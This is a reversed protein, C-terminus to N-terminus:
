SQYNLLFHFKLKKRFNSLSTAERATIPLLNWLRVGHYRISRLGYQTTNRREAFLDGKKSQRTGISHIDCINTFYNRFYLPSLDNLCEYVFSALQLQFVDNLKLLKLNDFIPTSHTTM